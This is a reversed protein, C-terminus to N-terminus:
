AVGANGVLFWRLSLYDYDTSSIGNNGLMNKNPGQATLREIEKIGLAYNYYWLNSLYGSFGGNPSVYVDGYNQKPVGRLHHSKVITGNVYVDLSDNRCCLVLHVWKNIPIDNIDIRENIMQFTNMIITIRNTNPSLYVGPANNPFNLGMTTQADGKKNSSNTTSSTNTNTDEQQRFDNGKYFLCRYQNANYTLDDVFFWVSWTFEIGDSANVSRPVLIAGSASPDQPIVRLIKGDVMGNVLKPTSDTVLWAIGQMGVKLVILFAVVTFLLFAVRAVLSNSELFEQTATLYHSPPENPSSFVPKGQQSIDM